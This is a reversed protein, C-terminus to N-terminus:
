LSSATIHQAANLVLQLQLPLNSTICRLANQVKCAHPTELPARRFSLVSHMCGGDGRLQLFCSLHRWHVTLTHTTMTSYTHRAHTAMTSYTDGNYQLPTHRWQVTLTAMTSYPSGATCLFFGQDLSFCEDGQGLLTNSHAPQVSHAQRTYVKQHTARCM